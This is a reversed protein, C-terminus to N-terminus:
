GRVGRRSPDIASLAASLAQEPSLCATQPEAAAAQIEQRLEDFRDVRDLRDDLFAAVAAAALDSMDAFEGAAIADRAAAEQPPSLAIDIDIAHKRDDM